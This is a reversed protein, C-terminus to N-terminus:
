NTVEMEKAIPRYVEGVFEHKHSEVWLKFEREKRRHPVFMQEDKRMRESGDTIQRLNHEYKKLDNTLEGRVKRLPKVDNNVINKRREHSEAIETQDFETFPPSSVKPSRKRMIRSLKPPSNSRSTQLWRQTEQGIQACKASTQETSQGSEAITQEM